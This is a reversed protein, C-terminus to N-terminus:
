QTHPATDTDPAPAPALQLPAAVSKQGSSRSASSAPGQVPAPSRAPPTPPAITSRIPAATNAKPPPGTPEPNMISVPPISAASPFDIRSPGAPKRTPAAALQAPDRAPWTTAYHEVVGYFTRAKLNASIQDV